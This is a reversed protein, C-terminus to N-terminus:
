FNGNNTENETKHTLKLEKYEEPHHHKLEEETIKGNRWTLKMPYIEPHYIVFFWHWIVIALTALIAEYFHVIEAVEFTWLPTFGAFFEPFWLVLGTVAMVATGWILALYEAKETYDFRPFEPKAKSLLLHYKMNMWFHQIDKITPILALIDRRGSKHFIFYVTQIISIVILVVASFRHINARIIETMGADVLWEVWFANPFKLAFGTIALITFSSFLLAHQIIEFPQFRQYQRNGKEKHIKQRIYYSVIVVNHIFMGGIVGIIMWIYFYKVFFATPNRSEQDIPHVSIQV